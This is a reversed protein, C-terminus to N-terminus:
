LVVIRVTGTGVDVQDLHHLTFDDVLAWVDTKVVDSVQVIRLFKKM